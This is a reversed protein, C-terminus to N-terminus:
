LSEHDVAQSPQGLRPSEFLDRRNTEKPWTVGAVTCAAMVMVPISIPTSSGYTALLATAIGGGIGGLGVVVIHARLAIAVTDQADTM